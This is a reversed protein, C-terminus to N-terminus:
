ATFESSDSPYEENYQPVGDDIAYYDSAMHVYIHSSATLGTPTTLTGAMISTQNGDFRRWFLSSGCTSCFGREAEDSSRYWCLGKDNTLNLEESVCASAAVYHGSTKRCQECHCYVVPRLEGSVQYQVAGCLCGGSTTQQTSM